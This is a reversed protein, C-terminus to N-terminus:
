GETGVRAGPESVQWGVRWGDTPLRPCEKSLGKGNYLLPHQDGEGWVTTVQTSLTAGLRGKVTLAPLQSSGPTSAHTDASALPCVPLTQTSPEIDFWQCFM